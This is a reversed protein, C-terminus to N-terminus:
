YVVHKMQPKNKPYPITSKKKKQKDHSFSLQYVNLHSTVSSVSKGSVASAKSWTKFTKHETQLVTPVTIERFIRRINQVTVMLLIGCSVVMRWVQVVCFVSLTQEKQMFFCLKQLATEM